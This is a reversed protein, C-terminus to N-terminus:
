LISDTVKVADDAHGVPEKRAIDVSDVVVSAGHSFPRENTAGWVYQASLQEKGGNGVGGAPVSGGPNSGWVYQAAPNVGYAQPAPNSGWVYQAAPNGGAYPHPAPNSGWVYQAAPNGGAYPQPAPNSGWVYQAAPNGGAYPQPAPNSGWVYQAAPNGGAHAPPIAGIPHVNGDQTIEFSALTRGQHTIHIEM